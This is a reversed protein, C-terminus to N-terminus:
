KNQKKLHYYKKINALFLIIIPYTIGLLIVLYKYVTDTLFTFKSINLPIISLISLFLITLYSLEKPNELKLTKGLIHNCIYTSLSIYILCLFIWILIFIADIRNIFNGFTINRSLLYLYNISESNNTNEYLNLIPITTIFLLILSFTYSLISIKKFKNPNKLFPSILFLYFLIYLSFINTLGSVFTTYFNKGFIPTFNSINFDTIM